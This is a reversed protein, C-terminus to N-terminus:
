GATWRRGATACRSRACPSTVPVRICRSCATSSRGSVITATAGAGALTLPGTVDLDGHQAGDVLGPALTLPYTASRLVITDAGALANAEQVAARLTCTGASTRCTGNGPVTDVRDSTSSVTFTAASAVAPACVAISLGLGIATLSRM